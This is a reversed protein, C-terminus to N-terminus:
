PQYGLNPSLWREVEAMTMGKRRAYAEVQDRTIRDVSFYRSEPHAFYLGSVSAAPYMAFSETLTISTKQEAQLLDFLIRKETHDPCAPYGAAPRIGRYKENILDEPTFQEDHGYGWDRRAQQHLCEAFAEALRDALAKAMIAHYDDHDAQFRAVLEDTGIGATVAFAGLYDARGSEIPAVFDALSYFAKQGKREWQQRLFHFRTLEQSRSEDAYLVVDDGQSTAPWFGYVGRARLLKQDVIEALLKQADAFLKRAEEGVVADDFIAPYKGRLEWAQFFPSWDIYEVLRALPFDPL